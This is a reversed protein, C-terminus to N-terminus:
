PLDVAAPRWTQPDNLIGHTDSVVELRSPAVRILVYDDGRNADKYFARWDEKWRRAKEAPDSVLTAKGIMTVYGQAGPDVYLLSRFTATGGAGDAFRALRPPGDGGAVAIASNTTGFDLGIM